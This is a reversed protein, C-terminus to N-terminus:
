ADARPLPAKDCRVHLQPAALLWNCRLWDAALELSATTMSLAEPGCVLGNHPPAHCRNLAAQHGWVGRYQGARCTRQGEQWAPM